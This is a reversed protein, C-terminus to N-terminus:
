GDGTVPDLFGVNAEFHVLGVTVSQFFGEAEFFFVAAFDDGEGHTRLADLLGNLFGQCFAGVAADM